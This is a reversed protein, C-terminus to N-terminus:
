FEFLTVPLITTSNGTEKDMQETQNLHNPKLGSGVASSLTKNALWGAKNPRFGLSSFFQYNRDFQLRVADAYHDDFPAKRWNFEERVGKWDLKPENWKPLQFSRDSPIDPNLSLPPFFLPRQVAVAPNPQASQSQPEDKEERQVIPRPPPLNSIAKRQVTHTPDYAEGYQNLTLKAQFFPASGRGSFFSGNRANTKTAQNETQKAPTLM